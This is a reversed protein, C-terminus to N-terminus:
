APRMKALSPKNSGSVHTGTVPFSDNIIVRQGIKWRRTDIRDPEETVLKYQETPDCDALHPSLSLSLTYSNRRKVVDAICRRRQLDISSNKSCPWTKSFSTSVSSRTDGLSISYVRLTKSRDGLERRPRNFQLRNDVSIIARCTELTKLPVIADRRVM